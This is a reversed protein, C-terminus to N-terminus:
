RVAREVASYLTTRAREMHQKFTKIGALELGITNAYDALMLPNWPTKKDLRLRQSRLVRTGDIIDWAWVFQLQDGRRSRLLVVDDHRMRRLHPRLACLADFTTRESSRFDVTEIHKLRM